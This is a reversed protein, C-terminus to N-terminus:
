WIGPIIRKVARAYRHYAEGFHESLLKEEVKMRYVLGPLLLVLLSFFGVLSSYGLSIGLAMSLFGAYAPHRLFAYPGHQVLTHGTSVSLHGSYEERLVRRAWIFLVAGLAVLVLGISAMWASRILVAPLYLFELPSAFFVACMGLTIFWFSRDGREERMTGGEGAAEWFREKRFSYTIIVGAAYIVGVLLLFWGLPNAPITEVGLLALLMALLPTIVLLFFVVLCSM